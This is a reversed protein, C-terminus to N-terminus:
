HDIWLRFAVAFKDKAITRIVCGLEDELEGPGAGVEKELLSFHENPRYGGLFSPPMM